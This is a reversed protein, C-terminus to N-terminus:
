TEGSALRELAPLSAVIAAQDADSLAELRRQLGQLRAARGAEVLRRGSATAEVQYARGDDADPTRRIAALQELSALIRTMSPASVGEFEALVGPRM